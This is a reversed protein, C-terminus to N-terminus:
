IATVPQVSLISEDGACGQIDELPVFAAKTENPPYVRLGDAKAPQCKEPNLAGTNTISIAATASEGPAVTIPEAEVQKERDAAEGLQSGNNDAVLSVGPFGELLCAARSNNKFELNLLTSGAAGQKDATSIELDKTKCNVVKNAQSSDSKLSQTSHQDSQASGEDQATMAANGPEGSSDASEDPTACASLILATCAAVATVASRRHTRQSDRLDHSSM